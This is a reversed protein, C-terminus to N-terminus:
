REAHGDDHRSRPRQGLKDLMFLASKDELGAIMCRKGIAKALNGAVPGEQLPHMM